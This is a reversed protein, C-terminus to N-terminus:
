RKKALRLIESSSLSKANTSNLYDPYIGREALHNRSLEYYSLPQNSRQIQYLTNLSSLQNVALYQELNLNKKESM